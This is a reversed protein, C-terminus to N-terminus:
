AAEPAGRAHQEAAFCAPCFPRGGTVAVVGDQKLWVAEHERIWDGCPGQCAYEVVGCVSIRVQEAM